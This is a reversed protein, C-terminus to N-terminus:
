CMRGDFFFHSLCNFLYDLGQRSSLPNYKGAPFVGTATLHGSGKGTVQAPIFDICKTASAFRHFLDIGQHLRYHRILPDIQGKGLGPRKVICNCQM